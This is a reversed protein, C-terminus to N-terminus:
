KQGQKRPFLQAAAVIQQASMDSSVPLGLLWAYDELTDLDLRLDPHALADDLPDCTGIRFSDLDDWIYNFMHERHSPEKAQKELYDLVSFPVIEAGLGDPYMNNRPIHNYAYDYDNECFFEVLRDIESASVFPNDACVRVVSGAGHACAANCCRGLVDNQSGRFIIAGIRSLHEALIDNVETDPLAFVVKDVKTALIVRRYVWEVVPLGNLWLMMKNPLRSADMRAQIVLIVPKKM